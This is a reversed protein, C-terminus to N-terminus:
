EWQKLDSTTRHTIPQERSCQLRGNVVEGVYRVVSRDFSEGIVCYVAVYYRGSASTDIVYTGPKM